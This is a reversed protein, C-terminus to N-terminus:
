VEVWATRWDANRGDSDGGQGYSSSAFSFEQSWISGLCLGLFSHGSLLIGFGGGLFGQVGLASFFSSVDQVVFGYQQHYLGQM